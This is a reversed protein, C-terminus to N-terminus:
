ILSFHWVGAKSYNIISAASDLAPRIPMAGLSDHTMSVNSNAVLDVVTVPRQPMKHGRRLQHLYCFVSTELAGQVTELVDARHWIQVSNSEFSTHLIPLGSQCSQCGLHQAIARHLKWCKNGTAFPFKWTNSPSTCGRCHQTLHNCHLFWRFWVHWCHQLFNNDSELCSSAWM